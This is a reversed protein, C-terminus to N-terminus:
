RKGCRGSHGRVSTRIPRRAVVSSGLGARKEPNRIM